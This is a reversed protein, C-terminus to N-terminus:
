GEKAPNRLHLFAAGLMEVLDGAILAEQGKQMAALDGALGHLYVGAIAADVAPYGQALLGTIIGTLVDGSGATAMGPNGTSNFFCHGEPSAICTFAGKLVIVSQLEIAKRRLLDLREFGNSAAGFLREFEKPHPTLISNSPLQKLLDPRAALLNLADADLVLPAEARGLLQDLAQATPAEQGWGCGAGIASFPRLDPMESIHRDGADALTMAEPVATQLTTYACQPSHVTVLGAGSRLCARAALVAAGAKGYSGASILAHGFVGKHDFRRRSRLLNRVSAADSFYYPTDMESVYRADLGIGAFHWEGTFRHNEPLFFALKPLEFSFTHHAELAVGSTPADTFLGSPVDIAVRTVPSRNCHLILDAWYGSVPRSLGSGFLADILLTDGRWEPLPDGPHLHHVEMGGGEIPLRDWNVQFDPSVTSGIHCRWVVVEYFKRHLMRAVALGDGGNNGPGALVVVRRDTDPFQQVFWRVFTLSAREMLDISAIPENAITHADLARIQGASLIKM